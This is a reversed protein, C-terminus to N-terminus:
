RDYNRKRKEKVYQRKKSEREGNKGTGRCYIGSKKMM